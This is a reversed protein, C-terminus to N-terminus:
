SMLSVLHEFYVKNMTRGLLCIYTYIYRYRSLYVFMGFVFGWFLGWIPWVDLFCPVCFWLWPCSQDFDMHHKRSILSLFIVAWACQPATWIHSILPLLVECLTHSLHSATPGQLPHHLCSKGLLTVWSFMEKFVCVFAIHFIFWSSLCSGQCAVLLCVKPEGDLVDSMMHEQVVAKSLFSPNKWTM